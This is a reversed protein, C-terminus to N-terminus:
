LRVGGLTERQDIAGGSLFITDIIDRGATSQVASGVGTGLSERYDTFTGTAPVGTNYGRQGERYFVRYRYSSGAIACASSPDQNFTVM